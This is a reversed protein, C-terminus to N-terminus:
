LQSDYGSAFYGLLIDTAVLSLFSVSVFFLLEPVILDDSFYSSIEVLSWLLLLTWLLTAFRAAWLPVFNTINPEGAIINYIIASLLAATLSALFLANAYSQIILFTFNAVPLFAFIGTDDNLITTVDQVSM